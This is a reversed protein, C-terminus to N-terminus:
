CRLMLKEISSAELHWFMGGPPPSTMHFNFCKDSFTMPARQSTVKTVKKQRGLGKKHKRKRKGGGGAPDSVTM